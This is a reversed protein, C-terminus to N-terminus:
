RKLRKAIAALHRGQFRAVALEDETPRRSGDGGAITGAGYPSGGIMANIDMLKTESYPVGVVIMGHHLLTTHFSLLTSEQGGHQTATSVFVGAPKGILAGKMWLSGTQDLFNRMQGSMNGFRTGTGFLFGDAEALKEVTAEPLHEFTKRAETAGIKALVDAPLTEPVRLLEAEVGEVQAAGEAEAKALEYVHGYISHFVVQIKTIM